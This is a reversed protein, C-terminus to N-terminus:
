NANFWAVYEEPAFHSHDGHEGNCLVTEVIKGSNRLMDALALANQQYNVVIDSQSYYIKIPPFYGIKCGNIVDTTLPDHTAVATALDELTIDEDTIGYAARITSRHSSYSQYQNILCTLPYQLIMAKIKGQLIYAANLSTMAGNSAGIMYCREEVNYRKTMHYFFDACANRCNNNGFLNDGYNQCGCVVYGANLLAEITPNSYWLSEDSTGNYETSDRLYDADDLPVYMTRKTWNATEVSGDMTWGNGHNCIVFPYPRVRFQNYNTPTRVFCWDNGKGGFKYILVQKGNQIYEDNQFIVDIYNSVDDPTLTSNDKVAVICFRYNKYDEGIHSNLNSINLYTNAVPSNEVAAGTYTDNKDIFFCAVRVENTKLFIKINQQMIFFQTAVRDTNDNPILRNNQSDYGGQRWRINQKIYPMEKNMFEHLPNGFVSISSIFEQVNAIESTNDTERGIQIHFKTNASIEYTTKWGTTTYADTSENYIYGYFRFGSKAVLTVNYPFVIDIRSSIRYPFSNIKKTNPNYVNRDFNGRTLKIEYTDEYSTIENM